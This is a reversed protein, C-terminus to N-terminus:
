PGDGSAPPGTAEGAPYHGTEELGFAHLGLVAHYGPMDATWHPLAAGIRDRLMRADGRLFDLLQGIQLALADRPYKASVEALVAAAAAIEGRAMHGLAAVHGAERDNAPLALAKAHCDLAVPLPAADTGAAHLYGLFVHAMVFDPSDALAARLGRVPEGIFCQHGALVTEYLDLAAASAGTPRQGTAIDFAM